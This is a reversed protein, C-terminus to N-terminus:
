MQHVKPKLLDSIPRGHPRPTRDNNQESTQSTPYPSAEHIRCSSHFDTPNTRASQAAPGKIPRPFSKAARRPANQRGDHLTKVDFGCGSLIATHCTSTCLVGTSGNIPQPAPPM